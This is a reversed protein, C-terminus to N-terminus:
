PLSRILILPPERLTIGGYLMEGFCFGGSLDSEGAAFAAVL